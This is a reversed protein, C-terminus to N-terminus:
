RNRVTQKHNRKTCQPNTLQSFPGHIIKRGRIVTSSKSGTSHFRFHLSLSLVSFFIILPDSLCRLPLGTQWTFGPASRSYISVSKKSRPLDAQPMSGRSIKQM